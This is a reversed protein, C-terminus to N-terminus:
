LPSGESLASLAAQEQMWALDAGASFSKGNGRLLVIRVSADMDAERFALQLEDVVKGNFANRVEPRNLRVELVPGSRVLELTEYGSM